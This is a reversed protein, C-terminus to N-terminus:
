LHVYGHLPDGLIVEDDTVALVAVFHDIFFTLKIVALTTADRPLDRVSSFPRYECTLGDPAYRDRLVTALTDPSTGAAPCTNALLAIEREEAAIGLNRLATVAAAPGCDYSTSQLCVGNPSLYT